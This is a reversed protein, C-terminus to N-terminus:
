SFKGHAKTRNKRMLRRGNCSLKNIYKTIHIVLIHVEGDAWEIPLSCPLTFTKKNKLSRIHLITCKDYNPKLEFNDLDEILCQLSIAQPSLIFSSDNAYMSVKKLGQMELGRINNSRIKIANRHGYGISITVASV